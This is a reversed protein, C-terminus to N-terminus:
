TLCLALMALLYLTLLMAGSLYNTKLGQTLYGLLWVALDLLVIELISFRFTMPVNIIWGFIVLCPGVFLSTSLATGVTSVYFEGSMMIVAGYQVWLRATLPIAFYACASQAVAPQYLLGHVLTDACFGLIIFQRWELVVSKRLDSTPRDSDQESGQESDQESYGDFLYAHTHKRFLLFSVCLLLSIIAISRSLFITKDVSAALAVPGGMSIDFWVLISFLACATFILTVMTWVAPPYIAELFSIGRALSYLGLIWTTNCLIFGILTKQALVVEGRAVASVGIFFEPAISMLVDLYRGSVSELGSWGFSVLNVALGAFLLELTRWAKLRALLSLLAFLTSLDTCYRLGQLLYRSWGREMPDFPLPKELLLIDEKYWEEDFHPNTAPRREAGEDDPTKLFRFPDLRYIQDAGQIRGLTLRDSAYLGTKPAIFSVADFDGEISTEQWTKFPLDSMSLEEWGLPRAPGLAKAAKKGHFTQQLLAKISNTAATPSKIKVAVDLAFEGESDIASVDFGTRLLFEVLPYNAARVADHLVTTSRSGLLEEVDNDSRLDSIRGTMFYRQGPSTTEDTATRQFHVAIDLAKEPVDLGNNQVTDPTDDSKFLGVGAYRAQQRREVMQQEIRGGFHSFIDETVAALLQHTDSRMLSFYAIVSAKAKAYFRQQGMHQLIDAGGQVRQMNYLPSFHIGVFTAWVVLGYVFIDCPILSQPLPKGMLSREYSEPPLWTDSGLYSIPEQQDASAPVASGFDCLKATWRTTISQNQPFILINELKLDGHVIGTSHVASLGHGIDLCLDCLLEYSAVAYDESRIFQALNCHSRELILLPTSLSDLDVTELADLSMGWSLLSVINPHRQLSPHCLRSVERFAHLVNNRRQDTRLHKVVCKTWHLASYKAKYSVDHHQLEQAKRAFEATVGYVNGQGGHGLHTCFEQQLRILKPGPIGNRHLIDLLSKLDSISQQPTSLLRPRYSQSTIPYRQHFSTISGPASYFTSAADEYNSYASAPHDTENQCEM